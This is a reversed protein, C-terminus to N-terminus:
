DKQDDGNANGLIEDIIKLILLGQDEPMAPRSVDGLTRIMQRKVHVRYERLAARIVDDKTM